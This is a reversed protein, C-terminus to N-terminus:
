YIKKGCTLCCIVKGLLGPHWFPRANPCKKQHKSLVGQTSGGPTWPREGNITYGHGCKSAM